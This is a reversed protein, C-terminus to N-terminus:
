VLNEESPGPPLGKYVVDTVEPRIKDVQVRLLYPLDLRHAPNRFASELKLAVNQREVPSVRVLELLPRRSACDTVRGWGHDRYTEAHLGLNEWGNSSHDKVVHCIKFEGDKREEDTEPKKIVPM